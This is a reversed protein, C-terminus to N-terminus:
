MFILPHFKSKFGSLIVRSSMGAIMASCNFVCLHEPGENMQGFPFFIDKKGPGGELYKQFM